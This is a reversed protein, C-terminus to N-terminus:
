VTNATPPLEYTILVQGMFQQVGFDSFLRPARFIPVHLQLLPLAMRALFDTSDHALHKLLDPNDWQPPDVM